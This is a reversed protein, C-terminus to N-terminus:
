IEAIPPRSRRAVVLALAIFLLGTVALIVPGAWEHPNSEDYGDFEIQFPFLFVLPFSTVDSWKDAFHGATQLIGWAGLVAWSSRSLRSGVGGCGVGVLGVVVWGWGG